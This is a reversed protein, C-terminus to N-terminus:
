FWTTGPPEFYLSPLPQAASQSCFRHGSLQSKQEGSGGGSGDGGGMAGGAGSTGELAGGAPSPQTSGTGALENLQSCAMLLGVLPPASFAHAIGHSPLLHGTEQLPQPGLGGVGGGAWGPSQIGASPAATSCPPFFSVVMKYQRRGPMSSWTVVTGSVVSTVRLVIAGWHQVRGFPVSSGLHRRLHSGAAPLAPLLEFSSACQMPPSLV